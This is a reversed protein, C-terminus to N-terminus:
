AMKKKRKNDRIEYLASASNARPNSIVSENRFDARM